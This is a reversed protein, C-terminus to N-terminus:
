KSDPSPPLGVLDFYIRRALTIGDADEVPQLGKSEMRSLVFSDVSNRIWDQKEVGPVDPDTIPQFSWFERAREFDIERRIPASKGDRPDHAGSRIWKEFDAIVDDPLPEDPPMEFSEYKIASLILSEDLDGPVVAHGSEGGRRIGERTDLVLGGEIEKSNAAHCQYCKAVLVPRIKAEFFAEQAATEQASLRNSPIM